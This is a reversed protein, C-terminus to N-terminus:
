LLSHATVHWWFKNAYLPDFLQGLGHALCNVSRPIFEFSCSCDTFCSAAFNINHIVAGWKSMCNDHKSIEKIAVQCDSELVGCTIRGGFCFRHPRNNQQICLGDPGCAVAGPCALAPGSRMTADVNVKVFNGVPPTWNM